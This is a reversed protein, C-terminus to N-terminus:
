LDHGTAWRVFTYNELPIPNLRDDINSYTFKYLKSTDRNDAYVVQQTGEGSNVLAFKLFECEQPTNPVDTNVKGYWIEKELKDKFRKMFAEDEATIMSKFKRM